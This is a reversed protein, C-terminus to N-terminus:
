SNVYNVLKTKFAEIKEVRNPWLIYEKQPDQSLNNLLPMIMAMLGDIKNKYEQETQVVASSTQELREKLIEEYAKLETESVLSFGFDDTENLSITM